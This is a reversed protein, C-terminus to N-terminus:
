RDLSVASVPAGNLWAPAPGSPVSSRPSPATTKAGNLWAPAPVAVPLIMPEQRVGPL